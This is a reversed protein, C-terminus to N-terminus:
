WIRVRDEPDLWLADGPKTQYAEHFEDLNRVINARFEPPSHVDVSLLQLQYQERRKSRWVTAWNAFLRQRASLGQVVSPQTGDLSIEYAHLAIALGGLDGINEGVTLAGNVKHGPLDRPEFADYQKILTEARETFRSRDDDTWWNSLNGSSDYQSGQDDFAHGVEHGIVAGIGGYNLAPDAEIDFFPARLIAAPFCIENTGPNYYANVTQPTMLWEDRDVPKGIKALQRDTEFAIARRVNGLLDDRDIELASYDRWRVPYGIKPRFARLKELARERTAQGMWELKEINRRYAEVLNAVLEDMAAKSEPPFHRAVYEQGVAEGLALEALAVGRKWRERLEESGALTRSYFEFNERVFADSLYPAAAHVLQWRLWAKWDDLPLDALADSVTSLYSPQRVVVEAFAAPPAQLADIWTDWDVIPAAAALETRSMLNYTKVVDRSAVRDWHGSALRTELAMIREAEDAAQQSTRGALELMRAVHAVYKTRVDAFGDDRYYSEDPLGIGAQVMKVVYRDSNRDDTDVYASVVGSVGDRELRGLLEFLQATTSVAEIANLDDSLPAAGLEEVRAEDMFSAFIDGIKKQPSGPALDGAASREAADHLIDATRREADLVLDIFVGATPLDAPIEATALWEGNVHGFLDDQPRISTDIGTVGPISGSPPQSM